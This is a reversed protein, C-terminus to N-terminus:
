KCIAAPSFRDFAIHAVDDIQDTSQGHFEINVINQQPSTVEWMVAQGDKWLFDDGPILPNDAGCSSTRRPCPKRRADLSVNEAVVNGNADKAQIVFFEGADLDMLYGSAEKVPRDYSVELIVGKRLTGAIFKKGMIASSNKYTGNNYSSCLHGGNCTFRRPLKDKTALMMPGCVPAASRNRYDCVQFSVGHTGKYQDDIGINHDTREEFDVIGAPDCSALPTSSPVPTPPPAAGCIGTGGPGEVTGHLNGLPVNTTATLFIKDRGFVSVAPNPSVVSGMQNGASDSISASMAVGSVLMAVQTPSQQVIRCDPRPPLPIDVRVKLDITKGAM